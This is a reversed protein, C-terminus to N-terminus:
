ERKVRVRAGDKLGEKGRVVVWEGERVGDTIETYDYTFYGIKVTRQRAVGNEVVWVYARNPEEIVADSPVLLTQAGLRGEGDVSVEMGPRLAPPPQPLKVVARLIRVSLPSDPKREMVPLLSEIRGQWRRGPLAPASIWVADGVRAKAADEQALEAEIWLSDPDVLEIVPVGPAFSEGPEADIRAVVCDRPATLTRLERARLAGQLAADAERLAARAINVREQLARLSAQQTRALQLEARATELRACAADLEEPRAGRQLQALRAEAARLRAQAVRQAEQAREYEARSLAGQQFLREAREADRQTLEFAAQAAEVEQQAQEIEERRAGSQVLRLQAEAEKVLTEARRIQAQVQARMQAYTQEAERLANVAAQ